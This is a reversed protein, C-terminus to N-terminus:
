QCHRRQAPRDAASSESSAGMVHLRWEKEGAVAGEAGRFGERGRRGGDDGGGGAEGERDRLLPLAFAAVATVMAVMTAGTGNWTATYAGVKVPHSHTPSDSM